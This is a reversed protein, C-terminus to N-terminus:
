ATPQRLYLRTRAPRLPGMAPSSPWTPAKVRGWQVDWVPSLPEMSKSMAEPPPGMAALQDISVKADNWAEAVQKAQALKTRPDGGKPPLYNHYKQNWAWGKRAMAMSVVGSASGRPVTLTVFSFRRKNGYRYSTGTKHEAEAEGKLHAGPKGALYATVYERAEPTMDMAAAAAARREGVSRDAEAKSEAAKLQAAEAKAVDPESIAVQSMPPHGTDVWGGDADRWVGVLTSGATSARL